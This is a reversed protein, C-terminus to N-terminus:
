LGKISKVLFHSGYTFFHSILEINFKTFINKKFIWSDM